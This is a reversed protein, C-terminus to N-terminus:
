ELKNTRLFFAGSWKKGGNEAKQCTVKISAITKGETNMKRRIKADVTPFEDTPSFDFRGEKSGGDSFVVVAYYSGAPDYKQKNPPVFRGTFKGGGVFNITFSTQQGALLRHFQTIAEDIWLEDDKLPRPQSDESSLRRPDYVTGDDWVIIRTQKEKAKSQGSIWSPSSEVRETIVQCGMCTKVTFGLNAPKAWLSVSQINPVLCKVGFHFVPDDQIWEPFAYDSILEQEGIAYFWPTLFGCHVFRRFGNQVKAEELGNRSGWATKFFAKVTEVTQWESFTHGKWTLYEHIVIGWRGDPPNLIELVEIYGGGGDENNGGAYDHQKIQFRSYMGRSGHSVNIKHTIPLEVTKVMSLSQVIKDKDESKCTFEVLQGTATRGEGFTCGGEWEKM